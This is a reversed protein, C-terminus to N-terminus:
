MILVIASNLSFATSFDETDDTFRAWAPLLNTYERSDDRRGWNDTGDARIEDDEIWESEGQSEREPEHHRRRSRKSRVLNNLSRMFFSGTWDDHGSVNQGMESSAGSAETMDERNISGANM